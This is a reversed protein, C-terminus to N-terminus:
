AKTGMVSTGTPSTAGTPGALSKPTVEFASGVAGCSGKASIVMWVCLHHKTCLDKSAAPAGSTCVFAQFGFRGRDPSAPSPYFQVTRLKACGDVIVDNRTKDDPDDSPTAVCTRAFVQLDADSSNVQIQVHIMDSARNCLTHDARWTQGHTTAHM